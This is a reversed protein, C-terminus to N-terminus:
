PKTTQPFVFANLPSCQKQLDPMYELTLRVYKETASLSKHGLCTSLIPLGTYIDMGSKVMQELSHVAMTHRLDHVRPGHHNGQYPISCIKLLDHFRKYVTGQTPTTGDLKVFYFHGPASLGGVPIRSRYSEYQLLATDLSDCLPVIRECGNKTKRVHIYREKHHIDRNELSLAESIRLGTSYLLRLLAPMMFSATNYSRDYPTKDCADLLGSIQEHTYIYPTFNSKTQKPCRVVYCPIGCRCILKGLQSWVSYKRCLTTDCDNVRTKRWESVLEKTIAPDTLGYSTAFEDIEKLIWKTRLADFGAAEKSEILRQIYPSLASSFVFQKSM